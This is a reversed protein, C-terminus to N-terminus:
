QEQDIVRAADDDVNKPEEGAAEENEGEKM